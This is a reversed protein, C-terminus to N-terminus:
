TALAVHIVFRPFTLRRRQASDGNVSSGVVTKPLVADTEDDKGCAIFQVAAARNVHSLVILHM